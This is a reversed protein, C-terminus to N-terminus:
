ERICGDTEDVGEAGREYLHGSMAPPVARRVLIRHDRAQRPLRGLAAPPSTSAKSARRRTPSASNRLDRPNDLTERSTRPGPASSATAPVSRSTPTPRPTRVHCRGRTACRCATTAWRRGSSCCRRHPNAQLRRGKATRTPTLVRVRRARAGEAVGHAGVPPRRAHRHRRRPRSSSHARAGACVLADLPSGAM